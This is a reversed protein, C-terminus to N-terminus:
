MPLYSSVVLEQTAILPPLFLLTAIPPPTTTTPSVTKTSHIYLHYFPTFGMGDVRVSMSQWELYMGRYSGDPLWLGLLSLSRCMHMVRLCRMYSSTREISGVGQKGRRIEQRKM